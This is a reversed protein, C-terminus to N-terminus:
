VINLGAMYGSENAKLIRGTRLADGIVTYDIELEDLIEEIEGGTPRQGTASIVTDYEFSGETTIVETDTIKTISVSTKALVGNKEFDALIDAKNFRDLGRALSPLAELVTVSNGKSILYEATECGVIGGGIIVVKSNKPAAAENELVDWAQVAKEIGEIPPAIPLAGTALIVKDPALEKILEKTASTNLKVKIGKRDLEAIAWDKYKGVYQKYPPVEALNLQGGLKGKKEILTVKHGREAATVAAQMGAPGGGIVLVSRSAKPPASMNREAEFGTEPNVACKIYQDMFVSELCGDLCSLCPRIEDSKGKRAKEAWFPDAILARGMAVFDVIGEELVKECLEPTKLMGVAMMPINIKGKLKAPAIMRGGEERRGTEYILTPNPAYGANVNLYDAGAAEFMQAIQISEEDSINDSDWMHVPMRVGVIFGPGCAKKIGSIIDRALRTRNELSGGYEDTRLNIEPNIFQSLFYGTASHVEVGDVGAMQALVAANIFKDQLTKIEEKSIVHFGEAGGDKLASVRIPINGDIAGSWTNQGAHYIQPILLAGHRHVSATLREWGPIYKEGDLTHTNSVGKGRPFEVPVSGVIITGVGGKAREEYYAIAQGSMSGDPNAMNDSMPAMVIRNKTIRSGLTGKSFLKPYAKSAM